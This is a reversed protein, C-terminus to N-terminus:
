DFVEDAANPNTVECSQLMAQPLEAANMLRTMVFGLGLALWIATVLLRKAQAFYLSGAITFILLMPAFKLANMVLLTQLISNRVVKM